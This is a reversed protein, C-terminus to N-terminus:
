ETEKRKKFAEYASEGEQEWFEEYYKWKSLDEKLSKSNKKEEGKSKSKKHNGGGFGFIIKSLVLIGIAKWYGVTPLGFLDPMLWNWLQQVAYGMLFVLGVGLIIVAIVKVVKTVMEKVGQEVHETIRAKHEM